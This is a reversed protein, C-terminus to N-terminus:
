TEAMLQSYSSVDRLSERLNHAAISVFEEFEANARALQSQVDLSRRTEASLADLLREIEAATNNQDSSGM